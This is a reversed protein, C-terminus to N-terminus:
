KMNYFTKIKERNSSKNEYSPHNNLKVLNIFFCIIM